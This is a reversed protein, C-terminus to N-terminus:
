ATFKKQFLGWLFNEDPYRVEGVQTYGLHTHLRFSRINAVPEMVIEGIIQEYEKRAEVILRREIELVWKAGDFDNNIAIHRFYLTPKELINAEVGEDLMVLERWKTVLSEWISLKYTLCYSGIAQKEEAVLAIGNKLDLLTEIQERTALHILFGDELNQCKDVRHTEQIALISDIDKENM